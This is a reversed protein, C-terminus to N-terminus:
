QEGGGYKGALYDHGYWRWQDENWGEPLGGAPLPAIAEGTDDSIEQEKVDDQQAPLVFDAQEYKSEPNSKQLRSQLALITGAILFLLAFSQAYVALEEVQWKPEEAVLTFWPTTQPPGEGELVARWQITAPQLAAPLNAIWADGGSANVQATMLPGGLVQWEVQVSETYQTQITLETEVGLTRVTPPTFDPSLRPLDEPVPEVEVSLGQPEIGFFPTSDGGHHISGYFMTTGIESSRVVWSVSTENTGSPLIREIYNVAGGNSDSLIDWGADLPTDSHGTTDTLLFLGILGSDIAQINSVTLTLTTPIGAYVRESSSLSLLATSSGNLAADGHCAGGCQMDRMSDGNGGPEAAGFSSCLLLVTLLFVVRTNRYVNLKIGGSLLM